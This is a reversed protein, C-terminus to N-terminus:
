VQDLQVPELLGSKVYLRPTGINEKIFRRMEIWELEAQELDTNENQYFFFNEDPFLQDIRAKIDAKAIKSDYFKYQAEM